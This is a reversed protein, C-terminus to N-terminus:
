NLNAHGAVCVSCAAGRWSGIPVRVPESRRRLFAAREDLRRQAVSFAAMAAVGVQVSYFAAAAEM